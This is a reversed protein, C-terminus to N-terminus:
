HCADLIQSEDESQVIALVSEDLSEDLENVWTCTETSFKFTNIKENSGTAACDFTAVEKHELSRGSHSIKYVYVMGSQDLVSLINYTPHNGIQNGAWKIEIIDKPFAKILTRCSADTTPHNM